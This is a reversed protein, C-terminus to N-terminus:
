IFCFNASLASVHLGSIYCIYLSCECLLISCRRPEVLELRDILVCWHGQFLIEFIESHGCHDCFLLFHVLTTKCWKYNFLLNFFFRFPLVIALSSCVCMVSFLLLTSTNQDLSALSSLFAKDTIRLHIDLIVHVKLACLFIHFSCRKYM